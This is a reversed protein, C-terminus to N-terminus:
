FAVRLEETSGAGCDTQVGQDTRALVFLTM